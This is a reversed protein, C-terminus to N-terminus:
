LGQKKRYNLAGRLAYSFEKEFARLLERRLNRLIEDGAKISKTL